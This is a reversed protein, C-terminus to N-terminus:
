RPDKRLWPPLIWVDHLEQNSRLVGPAWSGQGPDVAALTEHATLCGKLLM